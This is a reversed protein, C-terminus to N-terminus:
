RILMMKRIGSRDNVSLRAFYVGSPLGGGEFNVRYRGPHQSEDVLLEVSRGTIDFVELRVKTANSLQYSIVTSPNFPNPYNQFLGFGSPTVDIEDVGVPNNLMEELDATYRDKNAEWIEKQEPFWNLDGLPLGDTGATLLDTNTYSLDLEPPWHVEWTDYDLIPPYHRNTIWEPQPDSLVDKVFQVLSDVTDIYNEFQPDVDEFTNQIQIGAHRDASALARTNFFPMEHIKDDPDENNETSAYYGRFRSDLWTQNNTFLMRWDATDIGTTDWDLYGPILGAPDALQATEIFGSFGVNYHVNNAWILNPADTIIPSLPYSQNIFTSHSVRMYKPMSKNWTFMGYSAVTNNEFILTDTPGHFIRGHGFSNKSGSNLFFCNHIALNACRNFYTGGVQILYCNYIQVSSNMNGEIFSPLSFQNEDKCAFTINKLILDANYLGFVEVETHETSIPIVIPPHLISDGEQAHPHNTQGIIHLLPRDVGFTNHYVNLNGRVGYMKGKELMYVKMENYGNNSVDDLIQQAIDALSDLILTDPEQSKLPTICIIM